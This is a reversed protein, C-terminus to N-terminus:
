LRTLARAQRNTIWLWAGTTAACPAAPEALDRSLQVKCQKPSHSTNKPIKKWNLLLFFFFFLPLVSFNLANEKLGLEKAWFMPSTTPTKLHMSDYSNYQLKRFYRVSWIKNHSLDTIFRYTVHQTLNMSMKVLSTESSNNKLTFILFFEKLLNSRMLYFYSNLSNREPKLLWFLWWLSEQSQCKFFM